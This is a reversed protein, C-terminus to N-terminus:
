KEIQVEPQTNIEISPETKDLKSKLWEIHSKIKEIKESLQYNSNIAWLKNETFDKVRNILITAQDITRKITEKQDITVNEGLDGVLQKLQTELNTIQESWNISSIDKIISQNLEILWDWILRAKDWISMDWILQERLKKDKSLLSIVQWAVVWLFLGKLFKM